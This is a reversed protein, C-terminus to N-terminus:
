VKHRQPHRQRRVLTELSISQLTFYVQEGIEDFVQKLDCDGRAPCLAGPDAVLCEEEPLAPGEFIEVVDFLTINKPSRALRHGGGAGRISQVLGRRSLQQMVKALHHPSIGYREAISATSIPEDPSRALEMMAYLAFLTSKALKIM